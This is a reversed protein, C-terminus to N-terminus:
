MYSLQLEKVTCACNFIFVSWYPRCRPSPKVLPTNTIYLLLDLERLQRARPTKLQPTIQGVPVEAVCLM